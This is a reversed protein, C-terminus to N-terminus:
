DAKDFTYTEADKTKIEEMTEDSLAHQNITPM